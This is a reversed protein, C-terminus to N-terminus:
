DVYIMILLKEGFGYQVTTIGVATKDSQKLWHLLFDFVYRRKREIFHNVAVLLLYQILSFRSMRSTFLIPPDNKSFPPADAQLM